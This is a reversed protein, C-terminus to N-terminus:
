HNSYRMIQKQEDACILEFLKYEESILSYNNNKSDALFEEIAKEEMKRVEEDEEESENGDGQPKSQQNEYANLLRDAHKNNAAQEQTSSGFHIKTLYEKELDDAAEQDAENVKGNKAARKRM